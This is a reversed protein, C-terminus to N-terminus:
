EPLELFSGISRAAELSSEAYFFLPDWLVAQRPAFAMGIYIPIKQALLPNIGATQWYTDNVPTHHPLHSEAGNASNETGTEQLPQDPLNELLQLRLASAMQYSNLPKNWHELVIGILGPRWEACLNDRGVWNSLNVGLQKLAKRKLNEDYFDPLEELTPLSLLILIMDCKRYQNKNVFESLEARAIEGCPIGYDGTPRPAMLRARILQHSQKLRRMLFLSLVTFLVFLAFVFCAIWQSNRLSNEWQKADIDLGIVGVTNGHADVISAHASIWKGWADNFPGEIGKGPKTFLSQLFLSPDPYIEGPLSFDKSDIPEADCVFIVKGSKYKMVYAFRVEPNRQRIGNLADHVLRYAPTSLDEPEGKLQQVQYPSIERAYQSAWEVFRREAYYRGVGLLLLIAILSALAVAVLVKRLSQLSETPQTFISTHNAM